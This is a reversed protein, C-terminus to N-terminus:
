KSLLDWKLLIFIPIGKWAFTKGNGKWNQKMQKLFLLVELILGRWNQREALFFLTSTHVCLQKRSVLFRGDKQLHQLCLPKMLEELSLERPQRYALLFMSCLIGDLMKIWKFVHEKRWLEVLKTLSMGSYFTM